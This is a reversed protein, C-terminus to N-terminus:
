TSATSFTRTVAPVPTGVEPSTSLASRTAYGVPGAGAATDVTISVQRAADPTGTAARRGNSTRTSRTSESM